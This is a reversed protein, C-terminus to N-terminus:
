GKGERKGNRHEGSYINGNSWKIIGKGEFKGDKQFGIYTSGDEFERKGFGQKKNYVWGNSNFNGFALTLFGTSYFGNL